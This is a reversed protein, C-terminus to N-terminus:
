RGLGYSVQRIRVMAVILCAINPIMLGLMPPLIGGRALISVIQLAMWYIFTILVSIGFGVGKGGRTSRVGLPAGILAFVLSGFPIAIRRAIEVEAARADSVNGSARLVNVREWLGATTVQEVPYQLVSIAQPTGLNAHIEDTSLTTFRSNQSNVGFIAFEGDELIWSKTDVVWRAVPANAFATTTGNQRVDISVGRLTATSTTADMTVGGDAFVHTVTHHDDDNNTYNFAMASSMNMAGSKRASRILAEKRMTAKPVVSSNIWLGLFSILLGFVAVPAMIREFSLGAAVLATIESDGSLRGFGLLAALLIAMPFTLAIVQPLTYLILQGVILLGQGKQLFEAYRVLEGGAFFLGTFLLASGIFPSVIENLILRDLRTM